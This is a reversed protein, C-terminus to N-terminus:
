CVVQDISIAGFFAVLGVQYVQVPLAPFCGNWIKNKLILLFVPFALFMIATRDQVCLVTDTCVFRAESQTEREVIRQKREKASFM